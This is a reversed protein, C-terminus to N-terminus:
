LCRSLRRDNVGLPVDFYNLESSSVDRVVSFLTVHIRERQYSRENDEAVIM